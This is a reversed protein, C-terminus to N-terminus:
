IAAHRSQLKKQEQCSKRQHEGHTREAYWKSTLPREITWAAATNSIVGSAGDIESGVDLSSLSILTYELM